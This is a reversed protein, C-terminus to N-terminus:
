IPDNRPSYIDINLLYWAFDVWIFLKRGTSGPFRRHKNITVEKDQWYTRWYVACTFYRISTQFAKPRTPGPRTLISILVYKAKNHVIFMNPMTKKQLFDLFFKFEIVALHSVRAESSQLLRRCILNQNNIKFYM